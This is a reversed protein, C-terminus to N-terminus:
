KRIEILNYELLYKEWDKSMDINFEEKIQKELNNCEEFDERHQLIQWRKLLNIIQM